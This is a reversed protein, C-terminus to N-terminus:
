KRFRRVFGLLLTSIGFLGFTAPEPTTDVVIGTTFADDEGGMPTGSGDFTATGPECTGGCGSGDGSIGLYLVYSIPTSTPVTFTDSWATGDVQDMETGVLVMNSGSGELQAILESQTLTSYNALDPTLSGVFIDFATFLNPNGVGNVTIAGITTPSSLSILLYPNSTGGPAVWESGSCWNLANDASYTVGGFTLTADASATAFGTIAMNNAFMSAVSVMAGAVVTVFTRM